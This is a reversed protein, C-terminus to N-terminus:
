KANVYEMKKLQMEKCIDCDSYKLCSDCLIHYNECTRSFEDYYTRKDCKKCLNNKLEYGEECETCSSNAFSSCSICNLDYCFHM